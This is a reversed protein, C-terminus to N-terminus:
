TIGQPRSPDTAEAAGGPSEAEPRGTVHGLARAANTSGALAGVLLVAGSASIAMPADFYLGGVLLPVGLTWAAFLITAILVLACAYQVAGPVGMPGLGAVIAILLPSICLFGFSRSRHSHSPM